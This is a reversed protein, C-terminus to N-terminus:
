LDRYRSYKIYILIHFDIEFYFQLAHYMYKQTTFITVYFYNVKPNLIPFPKSPRVYFHLSTLPKPTHCVQLTLAETVVLQSSPPTSTM